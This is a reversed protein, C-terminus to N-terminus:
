IEIELRAKEISEIEILWSRGESDNVTVVGGEVGVIRVKFNRRGELPEKTLIQAKRGVARVFDRERKLPRDLGPSSVELSYVGPVVAEDDLLASIRKSLRGLDDIGIGGERDVLVRLVMTGGESLYVVDVLELGGDEVLPEIFAIVKSVFDVPGSSM